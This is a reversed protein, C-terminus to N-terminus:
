KILTIKKVHSFKGSTLKCFYVGAAVSEANWQVYYNGPEKMENVLTAIEEGHINYVKLTTFQQESITFQLTTVPNFPNPYNQLLSLTLPEENQEDIGVDTREIIELYQDAYFNTLTDKRGSNWHVIMTDVLIADNLGFHAVLSNQSRYGSGSNIERMMKLGGSRVEIQSGIGARNSVSGRLKIKLWHKTSDGNNRFLHNGASPSGSTYLDMAGDDDFDAWAGSLQQLTGIGTESTANTFTGDGNNKYIICSVNQGSASVFIDEFGDNNYDACSVGWAITNEVIGANASINEFTGNGLNKFLKIPLPNTGGAFPAFCFDWLGDNNFDLWQGGRGGGDFGLTSAIETFTGNGNNKHFFSPGSTQLNGIFLDEDGDRDFDGWHIAQEIIGSGQHNVGAIEAVNTFTGDGNNKWLADSITASNSVPTYCDVFGDNNFDAWAPMQASEQLIGAISEISTFTTDTVSERNNRWLRVPASSASTIVDLDDDNDIDAWSCTITNAMDNLGVNAAVDTFTGNGLNMYLKNASSGSTVVFLDPFKDNNFDTWSIGRATGDGVGNGATASVDTFTVQATAKNFFIFLLLCFTINM